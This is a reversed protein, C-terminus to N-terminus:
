QNEATRCNAEFYSEGEPQYETGSTCGVRKTQGNDTQIRAEWSLHRAGLVFVNVSAPDVKWIENEIPFQIEDWSGPYSSSQFHLNDPNNAAKLLNSQGMAAGGGVIIGSILTLRLLRDKM